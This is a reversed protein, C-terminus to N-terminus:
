ALRDFGPIPPKLARLDASCYRIAHEPLGRKATLYRWPPSGETLPECRDLLEKASSSTPNPVPRMLKASPM